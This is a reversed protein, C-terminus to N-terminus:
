DRAIFIRRLTGDKLWYQHYIAACAHLTILVILIPKGLEHIEGYPDGIYFALLGSVPMLILVVYFIAHSLKAAATMWGNGPPPPAGDVARLWLRVAVLALIAIGAWYHVGGFFQDFPSTPTGKEAAETTEAISEGFILQLLVLAAIIWHLLIQTKTYGSPTM